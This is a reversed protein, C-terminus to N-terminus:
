LADAIAEDLTMAQGEAWAAAFTAEDLAARALRLDEEWRDSRMAFVITRDGRASAEAGFLRAAHVPDGAAGRLGALKRLARAVLAPFPRAGNAPGLRLAAAHRAPARALDGEAWALDGLDFQAGAEHIVMGMERGIALSEEFLERAAGHEARAL